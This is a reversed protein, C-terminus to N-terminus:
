IDYDKWNWDRDDNAVKKLAVMRVYQDDNIKNRFDKSLATELWRKPLRGLIFRAMKKVLSNRFPLGVSGIEEYCPYCRLYDVASRVSRMNVDDVALIGGVKLLRTAYFCDLLTHDFTHWGDVFVFDYGGEKQALIESLAIESVKEVLEFCNLGKDHLRQIGQGKWQTMQFPDIITHMAGPRDHLVSCIELASGGAACGVELTKLIGPHELILQRLFLGEETDISVNDCHM